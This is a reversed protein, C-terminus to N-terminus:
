MLAPSCFLAALTGLIAFLVIKWAQTHSRGDSEADSSGAAMVLLAAVSTLPSLFAGVFAAVAGIVSVIELAPPLNLRLEHAVVFAAGIGGLIGPASLVVAAVVWGPEPVTSRRNARVQM